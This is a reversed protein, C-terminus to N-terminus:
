VALASAPRRLDAQPASVMALRRDLAALHADWSYDRRVRERGAAGMAAARSPDALLASVERCFDDAESAACLDRGPEARMAEVCAAAAVVPRAM